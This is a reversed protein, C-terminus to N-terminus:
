YNEISYENFEGSEAQHEESSVETGEEAGEGAGEYDDAYDDGGGDAENENHDEHVEYHGDDHNVHQNQYTPARSSVYNSNGDDYGHLSSVGNTIIEAQFGNKDDAKYKVVRLDGNPDLVSCYM